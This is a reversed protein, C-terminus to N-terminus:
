DIDPRTWLSLSLISIICSLFTDLCGGFTSVALASVRARSKDFNAPRGPVLLKGLVM